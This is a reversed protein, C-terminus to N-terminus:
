SVPELGPRDRAACRKPLLGPGAPTLLYAADSLNLTSEVPTLRSLGAHQSNSDNVLFSGTLINAPTLNVQTKALNGFRWATGRDAGPPLEQIINLDYEVEPALLFWARGKRLPGSFTGRPTWNSFQLGKRSQVSPFFDTASFRFYDDGMGTKLSVIGGTAKGYEVPYRSSQVVVSRVADVNVRVTFLGSVPNTINFGDLEDYIQHTSSGDIHIQSFADQLVGPLLPLAYRIDRTVNYPVNLIAERDLTQSSTTRAPDVAPPSYTVDVREVFERQHNLTVEISEAEGVRVEEHVLAFFGEKEVRLQYTGAPLRAFEYRGAYNTEGRLVTQGQTLILSASSVAVGNEDLVIVLLSRSQPESPFGQPTGARHVAGKLMSLWVITLLSRRLFRPM